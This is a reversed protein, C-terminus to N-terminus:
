AVVHTLTALRQVKAAQEASDFCAIFEDIKTVTLAKRVPRQLDALAFSKGTYKAYCHARVLASLGRADCLPVRHLDVVVVGAQEIADMLAELLDPATAIDLEGAVQVTTVDGLGSVGIELQGPDRTM